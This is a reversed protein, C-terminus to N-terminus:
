WAGLLKWYPVGIILVILMAILAMITGLEWFKKQPVYGGAFAILGSGNGYHTLLAGFASSFALLLAIVMKSASTTMALTFLVPYFSAVFASNSVFFYRVILSIFVLLLIVLVPSLTKLNLFSSTIKALWTYFGENALTDAIGLFAGFWIFISWAGKAKMMDNWDMVDTLLLLALFLFGVVQLSLNVGVIKTGFMWGLIALLFIVLLTKEKTNIKGMKDLNERALKKVSSLDKLEPPYIKYLIWPALFLFLGVPVISYALWSFWTLQVHMMKAALSVTIANNAMGTMFLASTTQSSVYSLIELYSGLKRPNEDPKSGTSAAINEFIPWIISQRASNSGTAPSLILDVLILLYGLTLSSDGLKLILNYAIRRGLGTKVFASAVITVVMIFWVMPDAYGGLLIKPDIFVAAFAIMMFAVVPEKYPRTILGVLLGLYLAFLHWTETKLGHPVPTFWLGITILLIILIKIIKSKNKM